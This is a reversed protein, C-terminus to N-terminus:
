PDIILEIMPFEALNGFGLVVAGGLLGAPNQSEPGGDFLGNNLGGRIFWTIGNDVDGLAFVPIELAIQFLGSSAASDVNFRIEFVGNTPLPDNTVPVPNFVMTPPTTPLRLSGEESVGTSFIKPAAPLIIHPAFDEIVNTSHLDINSNGSDITRVIDTNGMGIRWTATSLGYPIEFVPIINGLSDTFRHVDHFPLADFAATSMTSPIGPPVVYASGPTAHKFVNFTSHPVDTAHYFPKRNVSNELPHVTFTLTRTDSTIEVKLDSLDQGTIPGGDNSETVRGVALLTKDSNRGAFLIGTYEGVPLFIRGTRAYDWSARYVKAPTAIDQFTAEFFNTGAEALGQVSTLARGGTGTVNLVLGGQSGDQPSFTGDCTVMALALLVAIVVFIVKKM